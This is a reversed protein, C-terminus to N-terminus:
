IKFLLNIQYIVILSHILFHDFWFKLKLATQESFLLQKLLHFIVRIKKHGNRGTLKELFVIQKQKIKNKRNQKIKKIEVVHTGHLDKRAVKRLLEWDKDHLGKSWSVKLCVISSFIKFNHLCDLRKALFIMRLFNEQNWISFIRWFDCRKLTLSSAIEPNQSKSIVFKQLGSIRAFHKIQAKWRTLVNFKWGLYEHSINAVTRIRIHGADTSCRIRM